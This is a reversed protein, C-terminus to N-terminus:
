KERLSPWWAVGRYVDSASFAASVALVFLSAAGLGLLHRGIRGALLAGISLPGIEKAHNLVFREDGTSGNLTCEGTPCYVFARRPRRSDERPLAIIAHMAGRSDLM